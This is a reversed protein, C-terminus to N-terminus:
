KAGARVKKERFKIVVYFLLGYVVIGVIVGIFLIEHFLGWEIAAQSSQAAARPVSEALAISLALPSL